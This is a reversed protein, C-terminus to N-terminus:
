CRAVRRRRLLAGGLLLLLALGPLAGGGTATRAGASCGHEALLCYPTGGIEGCHTGAPCSNEDKPDCSATCYQHSGQTCIGSACQAANACEQGVALSTGGDAAGGGTTATGGDTTTTTTTPTTGDPLKGDASLIAPAIFSTWFRDVRTDAGGQACNQDGFSTVGVIVEVGKRTMFAPGGSDGECTNHTADGFGLFLDDVYGLPTSVQRKTGSTDTSGNMSTVGYGVLRLTTGIDTDDLPDRNVPLPTVPIATSTIVVAIDHGGQLQNVDFAPDFHTEKVNVFNSQTLQTQDNFNSGLFLQFQVGTGVTSPSVCHAATLAVHASIVEATCLSGSSSGPKQGFLLVVGPDASDKTGGVIASRSANLGTSSDADTQGPLTCGGALLGALLGAPLVTFLSALLPARSM